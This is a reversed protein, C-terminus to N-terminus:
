AWTENWPAHAPSPIATGLLSWQPRQPQPPRPERRGGHTAGPLRRPAARLGGLPLVAGRPPVCTGCEQLVLVGCVCVSKHVCIVRPHASCSPLLRCPPTHRAAAVWWFVPADGVWRGYDVAGVGRGEADYWGRPRDPYGPLTKPPHAPPPAQHLLCGAIPHWREVVWGWSPGGAMRTGM